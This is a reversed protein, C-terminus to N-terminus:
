YFPTNNFNFIAKSFRNRQDWIKRSQYWSEPDDFPDCLNADLHHSLHTDRFRYYPVILSYPVQVLLDNISQNRFPHGHIVEHQLSSQLTMLPILAIAALWVPLGIPAFLLLLCLGHVLAILLLTRWDGRDSLLGADITTDRIM